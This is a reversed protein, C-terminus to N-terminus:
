VPPVSDAPFRLGIVNQIGQICLGESLGTKFTFVLNDRSYVLTTKFHNEDCIKQLVRQNGAAAAAAYVIDDQVQWM